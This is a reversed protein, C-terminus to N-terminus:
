QSPDDALTTQWSRTRFALKLDESPTNPSKRLIGALSYVRDRYGRSRMLQTAWHADSVYAELFAVGSRSLIRELGRLLSNWDTKNGFIDVIVATTVRKEHKITLIAFAPPRNSVAESAFVLYRTEPHDFYRWKLYETSKEVRIEDGDSTSSLSLDGSERSILSIGHDSRDKLSAKIRLIVQDITPPHTSLHLKFGLTESWSIIKVLRRVTFVQAFALKRLQATAAVGGLESYGLISHFGRHEAEVYAASAVAEFLGRRRFSPDTAADIALGMQAANRGWRMVVPCVSYSAVIKDGETAVGISSKGQPNKEYLWDWYSGGHWGGFVTRM